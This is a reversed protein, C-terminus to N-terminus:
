FEERKIRQADGGEEQKLRKAERGEDLVMGDFVAPERNHIAKSRMAAIKEMSMDLLGEMAEMVTNEYRSTIVVGLDARKVVQAQIPPSDWNEGANYVYGVM